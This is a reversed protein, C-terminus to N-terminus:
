LPVEYVSLGPFVTNGEIRDPFLVIEKQPLVYVSSYVCDVSDLSVYMYDRSLARIGKM